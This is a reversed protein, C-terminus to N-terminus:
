HHNKGTGKPLLIDQPNKRQSLYLPLPSLPFPESFKEAIRVKKVM